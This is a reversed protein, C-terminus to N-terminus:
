IRYDKKVEGLEPNGVLHANWWFMGTKRIKFHGRKWHLKRGNEAEGTKLSKLVAKTKKNLDIIRYELLASKGKKERSRNLATFDNTEKVEAIQPSNIRAIFDMIRLCDWYLAQVNDPHILEKFDPQMLFFDWHLLCGDNLAKLTAPKFETVVCQKASQNNWEFEHFKVCVVSDHFYDLIWGGRDGNETLEIWMPAYPLKFLPLVKEIYKPFDQPEVPLFDVFDESLKFKPIDPLRKMYVEVLGKGDDSLSGWGMPDLAAVEDILM